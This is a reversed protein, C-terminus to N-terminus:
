ILLKKQLKLLQRLIIRKPLSLQKAKAKNELTLKFDDNTFDVRRLNATALIGYEALPALQSNLYSAVRQKGEVTYIHDSKVSGTAFRVQSRVLPYVVADYWNPGYKTHLKGLKTRDLGIDLSLDASLPQGDATAIGNNINQLDNTYQDNRTNYNYVNNSIPEIWTYSGSVLERTEGADAGMTSQAFAGEHLDVYAIGSIVYVVILAAAAMGAISRGSVNVEIEGNNNKIL